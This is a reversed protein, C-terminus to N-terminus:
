VATTVSQFLNGVSSGLVFITGVFAVGVLIAILGYEILTVGSQDAAFRRLTQYM